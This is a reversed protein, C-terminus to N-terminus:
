IFVMINKFEFYLEIILLTYCEFNLINIDSILYFLIKFILSTSYM